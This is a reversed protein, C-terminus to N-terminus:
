DAKRAKKTAQAPAKVVGDAATVKGGNWVRYTGMIRDWLTFYQGYNYRFFFHHARHHASGNIFGDLSAYSVRDHISITWVQVFVFMALYAWNYFPFMFTFLHYPLSQFFGDFPNFAIAAWPTPFKFSHHTKHFIEYFPKFHLGYHIWFILCDTYLLFLVISAALYAMGYEHVDTYVRGYGYWHLMYMCATLASVVPIGQLSVRIERAVQGPKVKRDDDDLLTGPFLVFIAYYSIGASFMYLLFGGVSLIVYLVSFMRISSDVGLGLPEEGLLQPVIEENVYASVVDM